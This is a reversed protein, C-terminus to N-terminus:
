NALNPNSEIAWQPIPFTERDPGSADKEWWENGFKGFRILDQRRHGEWFMERSREDLLMDLDVNNWPDLGARQRIMNVYDDGAGPGSQRILAEAKMLIIDGLRFVPFHNGLNERAGNKIEFKIVRAGAMEIVDEPFSGPAMELAPINPDLYVDLAEGTHSFQEGYLFGDRRRDNEEYNNFHDEVAAFGNWPGVNMNFTRNSQYHLTRMHLNFGHYTDEHYPIVWINEPSEQNNTVFPGLADAELAYGMELVSDAYEAAKQWYMNNAVGTYVEANLYLKALLSYAMGPTVATKSTQPELLLVSEELDQVIAEFIEARPDVFPREPADMFNRIFPVDGYNDILLYYYYSRLIIAKAIAQDVVPDGAFADQEEIFRNAATVGEYFRGWMAQVTETEYHWDHKHLEVWKFDDIWHEGRIPCVVGDGTLEQAFWWGGWDLHDQMPRYIPSMRLVPDATYADEPIRDYLVDDLDTCGVMFILGIVISNIVKKM